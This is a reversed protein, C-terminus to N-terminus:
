SSVQGQALPFASSPVSSHGHPAPLPNAVAAAARTGSRGAGVRAPPLREMSCVWCWAQAPSMALAYPVAGHPLEVLWWCLSSTPHLLGWLSRPSQTGSGPASQWCPALAPQGGPALGSNVCGWSSAVAMLVWNPQKQEDGGVGCEQQPMEAPAWAACAPFWSEGCGRALAVRTPARAPCAMGSLVGPISFPRDTGVPRQWAPGAGSGDGGGGAM